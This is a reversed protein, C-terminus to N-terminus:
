ATAKDQMMRYLMLVLTSAQYLARAQVDLWSENNNPQREGDRTKKLETANCLREAIHKNYILSGGGYSYEKWDRAGNLLWESLELANVPNRGEYEAREALSEILELAYTNVGKDWASRNDLKDLELAMKDYITM